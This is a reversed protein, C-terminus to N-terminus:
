RFYGAQEEPYLPLDCRWSAHDRHANGLPATFSLVWKRMQLYDCVFYHDARHRVGLHPIAFAYWHFPTQHIM